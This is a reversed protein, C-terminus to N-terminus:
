GRARWAMAAELAAREAAPVRDALGLRAYCDLKSEAELGASLASTDVIPRGLIEELM